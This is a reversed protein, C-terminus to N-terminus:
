SEQSDIVFWEGDAVGAFQWLIDRNGNRGPAVITAQSQQSLQLLFEGVTAAFRNNGIM